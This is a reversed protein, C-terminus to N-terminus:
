RLATEHHCVQRGQHSQLQHLRLLMIDGDYEPHPREASVPNPEQDRIRAGTKEIVRCSRIRYIDYVLPWLKRWEGESSFEHNECFAMAAASRHHVPSPLPGSTIQQQQSSPVLLGGDRQGPRDGIWDADSHIL